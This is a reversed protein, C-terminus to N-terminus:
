LWVRESCRNEYMTEWCDTTNRLKETMMSQMNTYPFIKKTLLVKLEHTM